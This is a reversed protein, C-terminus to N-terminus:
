KILKNNFDKLTELVNVRVHIFNEIGVAKLDDMCAPAGAVVFLQKGNIAKYAAPALEAYEDDSSCLVIVDANAKQAAEVGAEVTEFGLNDIVEYGACAFFNCSFQARALRMALNGITLMFAKPRHSSKETALRLQEFDNAGRTFDLKEITPQCNCGCKCSKGDEIKDLVKETFNPFQNTGLLIERRKAIAERRSKGAANVANQIEGNAVATYFGGKEEIELFLNWAQEALSITLNEIYYSGASPDAVKDFHSEEKLLLQQNRAIRESFDDPTKYTKDFPLVTLSDVGGLTAAMSETQTRLLNVYADYITKNWESTSAHVKIKQACAHETYQKVITAWLLRAARFKAIEMFYNGSVGFNFKIDGAVECADMGQETLNAIIDNGWAMAYALEEYIFAGANNFYVPNVAIVRYGELEKGADLVEKYADWINGEFVKGKILPKKFPDFAISGCAKKLDVNESKFYNTLLKTLEATKCLCTSFNLEVCEPLIGKLLTALNEASVLDAPISFGLSDVGKNLVDLAKANADAINEVAIDQRVLWKNDSKTGRVYPFEGPLTEINIGELNESRYMPQVNFGENTKWVLKKDFDAGKLDAIVKEKWEATSVPPFDTFLKEKNNAM